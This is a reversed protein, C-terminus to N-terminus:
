STSRIRFTDPISINNLVSEIFSTYTM